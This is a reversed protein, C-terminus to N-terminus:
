QIAKQSTFKEMSENQIDAIHKAHKKEKYRIVLIGTVVACVLLAAVYFWLTHPDKLCEDDYDRALTAITEFDYIGTDIEGANEADSIVPYGYGLSIWSRAEGESFGIAIPMRMGPQSSVIIIRDYNLIEDGYGLLQDYYGEVCGRMTETVHWKGEMNRLYEVDEDTLVGRRDGNFPLGRAITVSCWEGDVEVPVVWVYNSDELAELLVEQQISKLKVLNTDVYIRIARSFDISEPVGEAGTWLINDRIDNELLQIEQFDNNTELLDEEAIPLEPEAAFVNESQIFSITLIIFLLGVWKRM